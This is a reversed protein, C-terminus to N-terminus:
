LTKKGSEHSCNVFEGKICEVCLCLNIKTQIAIMHKEWCSKISLPLKEDHKITIDKPDLLFYHKKMDNSFKDILFNYIDVANSYSFNSTIVARWLPGKVGFGSMADVLGKGHGSVGYYVIVMKQTKM